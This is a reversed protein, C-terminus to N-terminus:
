NPTGCLGWNYIQQKEEETLQVAGSPPMEGEFIVEVTETPDMRAGEYTDYNWEGPADQRTDGMLATSHCSICKNFAQIESFTPVTATDCNVEPLEEDESDCGSFALASLLLALVTTHNM